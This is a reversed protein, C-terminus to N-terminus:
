KSIYLYLVWAGAVIVVLWLWPYSNCFALTCVAFALRPRRGIFHIVLIVMRRTTAIINTVIRWL